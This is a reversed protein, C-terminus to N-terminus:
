RSASATTSVRSSGSKGSRSRAISISRWSARPWDSSSAITAPSPYHINFHDYDVWIPTSHFWSHQLRQRYRPILHLRSEIYARIADIDVGGDPKTLTEADFTATGAIHMPTHETEMILFSNDLFTLRDYAYHHSM